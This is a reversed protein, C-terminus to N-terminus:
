SCWTDWVVVTVALPDRCCGILYSLILLDSKTTNKKTESSARDHDEVTGTNNMLSSLPVITTENEVVFMHM